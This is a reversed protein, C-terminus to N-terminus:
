NRAVNPSAKSGYSNVRGQSGGYQRRTASTGTVGGGRQLQEIRKITQQLENQLEELRKRQKIDTEKADTIQKISEDL